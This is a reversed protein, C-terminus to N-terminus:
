RGRFHDNGSHPAKQAHSRAKPRGAGAGATASRIATPRPHTFLTTRGQRRIAVVHRMILVPDALREAIEVHGGPGPVQRIVKIEPWLVDNEVSLVTLVAVLQHFEM